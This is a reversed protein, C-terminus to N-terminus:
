DMEKTAKKRNISRIIRQSFFSTLTITYKNYELVAEDPM